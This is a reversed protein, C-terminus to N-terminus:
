MTQRGHALVWWLIESLCLNGLVRGESDLVPIVDEEHDLMKDLAVQLTDSERVSLMQPAGSVLDRAKRADVIRFFESVPIEHRGKGGTLKLHAWRLLDVRTIMGVFRQKSDVLLIGSVSPERAVTGIVDELSSDAPMSVTANGHLKYIEAVLTKNV